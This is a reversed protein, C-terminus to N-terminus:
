WCECLNMYPWAHWHVCFQVQALLVCKCYMAFMRVCVLLAHQLIVLASSICCSVFYDFRISKKQRCRNNVKWCRSFVGYVKQEKGKGKENKGNRELAMELAQTWMVNIRWPYTSVLNQSTISCPSLFPSPPHNGLRVGLACSTGQHNWM